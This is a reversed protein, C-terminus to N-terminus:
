ETIRLTHEDIFIGPGELVRPNIARITGPGMLVYRIKYDGPPAHLVASEQLFEDKWIWTREAFLERDVFMRYRPPDAPWDCHVDYEFLVDKYVMCYKHGFDSTFLCHRSNDIGKNDGVYGNNTYGKIQMACLGVSGHRKM